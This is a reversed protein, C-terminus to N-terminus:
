NYYIKVLIIIIRDINFLIDDITLVVTILDFRIGNMALMTICLDFMISVDRVYGMYGCIWYEDSYIQVNKMLLISTSHALWSFCKTSNSPYMVKDPFWCHPTHHQKAYNNNKGEHM